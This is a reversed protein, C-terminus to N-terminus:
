FDPSGTFVPADTPIFRNTETVVNFFDNVYINFYDFVFCVVATAGFVIFSDRVIFKLGKKEEGMGSGVYKIEVFKVIGFLVATLIALFIIKDM